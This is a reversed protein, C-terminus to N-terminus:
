VKLLSSDYWVDLQNPALLVRWGPSLALYPILQPANEVLHHVHFPQFFDKDQSLTEGGWIYWGSSGNEAPHRLANLPLQNLSALAIGVIDDESLPVFESDFRKCIEQQSLNEIM